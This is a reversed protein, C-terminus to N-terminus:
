ALAPLWGLALLLCGANSNRCLDECLPGTEVTELSIVTTGSACSALRQTTPELGAWGGFLPIQAIRDCATPLPNSTRRVPGLTPAPQAPVADRNSPRSAAPTRTSKWTAPTRSRSRQTTTTPHPQRWGSGNNQHGMRLVTCADTDRGTCTTGSPGGGAAVVNPSRPM